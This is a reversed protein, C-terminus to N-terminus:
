RAFGPREVRLLRRLDGDAGWVFEDPGRAYIRQPTIVARPIRLCEAIRLAAWTQTSAVEDAIAVHDRGFARLMAAVAPIPAMVAAGFMDCASELDSERYGQEDLVIHGLEHGVFFQAYPVSLKRSVAIRREGRVTFLKAPVGVLNTGREIAGRGLLLRALRFTDAPREPDLNLRRYFDVALGEIETSDLGV